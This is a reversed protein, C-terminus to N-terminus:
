CRLHVPAYCRARLLCLGRFTCAPDELLQLPPTRWRFGSCETSFPLLGAGGQRLAGMQVLYSPADCPLEMPLETETFKVRADREEPSMSGKSSTAPSDGLGM